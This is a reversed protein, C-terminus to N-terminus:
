KAAPTQVQGYAYAKALGILRELHICVDLEEREKDSLVETKERRILAWFRERTEESPHFAIVQEPTPASAIFRAVEEYIPLAPDAAPKPTETPAVTPAVTM